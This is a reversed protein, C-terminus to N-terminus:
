NNIIKIIGANADVEVNDGDKIVLTANKTGIVCPINLERSIIAAHCTISGENTVVASAKKMLYIFEPRTMSTVLIDGENFEKVNASDMVVRATGRVIGKNATVGKIIKLDSTVDFMKQTESYEGLSIQYSRDPNLLVVYGSTRKIIEEETPLKDQILELPMILPLYRDALNPYLLKTCRTMVTLYKMMSDKREDRLRIIFSVYNAWGEDFTEINYNTEDENLSKQQTETLKQKVKDIPDTFYYDTFMFEIEKPEKAERMLRDWRKEFHEFKPNIAKEWLEKSIKKRLVEEVMEIDLYEGYITFAFFQSGLDYARRLTEKPDTIKDDYLKNINEKVRIFLKYLEDITILGDLYDKLVDISYGKFREDSFVFIADREKGILLCPTTKTKYLKSFNKDECWPNMLMLVSLPGRLIAEKENNISNRFTELLGRNM